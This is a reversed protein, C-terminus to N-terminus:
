KGQGASAAALERSIGAIARQMQSEWTQATGANTLTDLSTTLDQLRLQALATTMRHRIRRLEKLDSSSVARILEHRHALFELQLSVLVRHYKEPAKGFLARLETFDPLGQPSLQVGIARILEERSLPKAVIGAIGSALCEERTAPLAQATVALLPLAPLRAAMARALTTGTMDPLQLDLLAIDPQCSDLVALAAAGDEAMTLIVGTEELLAAMVERNTAVDEVYLIRVGTLVPAQERASEVAAVEGGGGPERWPLRVTFVSGEGPVSAAELAGEQLVALQRSIALGLGTGGARRVEEVGAQIYPDFLRELEAPAVGPGTDSVTLKLWDADRVAHLTVNGVTTFKLANGLLNNLIQSLRLPDGHAREPLAPDMDLTLSLAKQMAQPRHTLIIEEQLEHLDYTTNSFDMMGARIRSWDLADNLLGMLHRAAARLSRLVPEQHPAPRNRELVSLMGTVSNLPTRIEHSMRAVFDERASAALEAEHRAAEAASLTRRVFWAVAASGLLTAIATIMVARNRAERWGALMAAEPLRLRLPLSRGASQGEPTLSIVNEMSLEGSGDSGGHVFRAAIGLDSGFRSAPDPHILYDGRTNALELQVGSDPVRELDALLDRLDMNIVVIGFVSGDQARVQAATRLTPIHPETVKGFDKNLDLDSLYVEGQPLAMAELFYDRDGKQQLQDQPTAKIEGGVNDLRIVERGADAAGILRVQFYAPKGSLLAAFDSEAMARWRAAADPAAAIFEHVAPHRSLYRADRWADRVVAQLKATVLRADHELFERRTLELHQRTGRWLLWGFSGILAACVVAWLLGVRASPSFKM